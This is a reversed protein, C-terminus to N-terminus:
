KTAARITTTEQIWCGVKFSAGEKLTRQFIDGKSPMFKSYQRILKNAEAAVSQDVQKAKNWKDIAPWTVIQSKWGTGPGCLKGSSAYLKGILLYAAGLNPNHTLAKRAYERSKNFDSLHSYYIKAIRNLYKAKKAPDSTSNVFEEYKKIACPYNNEELCKKADTLPGGGTTTICNKKFADNIAILQAVTKECGGRRLAQYTDEIVECDNPKAEFDAYFKEIFYDCTYFGKSREYADQLTLSYQEVQTWANCVKDGKCNTQNHQIIENIKTVNERAEAVEIKGDKYLKYTLTSFPNIASVKASNGDSLVAKKLKQYIEEDSLVGKYDYYFDAAQKSLYYSEKEPFCKVAKDYIEILKNIYTKRIAEDKETELRANYIKLGDRFVYDIKGNTAPAVNYVDLWDPFAKEFDKLKIADRYINYKDTIRDMQGPDLDSFKICGNPDLNKVKAPPPPPTAVEVKEQVKPSCATIFLLCVIAMQLFPNKKM